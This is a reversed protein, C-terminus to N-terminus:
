RRLPPNLSGGSGDSGGTWWPSESVGGTSSPYGYGGTGGVGAPPQNGASQGAQSTDSPPLLDITEQKCAELALAASTAAIVGIVLRRPGGARGTLSQGVSKRAMEKLM